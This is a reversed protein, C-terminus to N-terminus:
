VTYLIPHQSVFPAVVYGVFLYEVNSVVGVANCILLLWISQFHSVHRHLPTKKDFRRAFLVYLRISLSEIVLWVIASEVNDTTSMWSSNMAEFRSTKRGANALM